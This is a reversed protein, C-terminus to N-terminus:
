AAMTKSEIWTASQVLTSLVCRHFRDHNPVTEQWKYFEGRCYEIEDSDLVNPIIVYGKEGLEESIDM